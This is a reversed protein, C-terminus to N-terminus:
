LTMGKEVTQSAQLTADKDKNESYNLLAYEVRNDDLSLSTSKLSQNKQLSSSKIEAYFLTEKDQMIICYVCWNHHVAILM